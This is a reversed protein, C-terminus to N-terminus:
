EGNDEEKGAGSHRRIWANASKETRQKQAATLESALAEARDRSEKLGFRGGLHLWFYARERSAARYRGSLCLRGLEYMAQADGQRAAKEYWVM